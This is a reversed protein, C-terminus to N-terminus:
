NLNAGLRALERVMEEEKRGLLAILPSFQSNPPGNVSLGRKVLLRLMEPTNALCLLNIGKEEAAIKTSAGKNILLEVELSDYKIACMLPTEKNIRVDFPAGFDM